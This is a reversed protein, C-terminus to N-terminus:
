AFHAKNSSHYSHPPLLPSCARIMRNQELVDQRARYLPLLVSPALLAFVLLLAWVPWPVVPWASPLCCARAAVLWPPQQFVAVINDCSDARMHVAYDPHQCQKFMWADNQLRVEHEHYAAQFVPVKIVLWLTALFSVISWPDM